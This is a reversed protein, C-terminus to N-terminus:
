VGFIESIEEPTKGKIMGDIKSWTLNMLIYVKMYCASTLLDLLTKPDVDLFQAIWGELEFDTMMGSKNRKVNKCYEFVMELMESNMKDVSITDVDDDDVYITEIFRKSMLVGYDSELVAGDFCILKIKKTWNKRRKCEDFKLYFELTNIVFTHVEVKEGALKRDIMAFIAHIIEQNMEEYVLHYFSLFSIEELTPFVYKIPYLNNLRSFLGTLRKTMIKYTSWRELLVRLLPEDQKEQLSPLVKSAIYDKCTEKYFNYLEHDYHPLSNPSCLNFVTTYIKIYEESTFNPESGELINFLKAIGEQLTKLGEEFTIVNRGTPANAEENNRFNFINFFNFSFGFPM